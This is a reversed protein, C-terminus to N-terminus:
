DPKADMISNVTQSCVFHSNVDSLILLDMYKFSFVWEHSIVWHGEGWNYQLWFTSLICPTFASAALGSTRLEIGRVGCPPLSSCLGLLQGRIKAHWAVCLHVHKEKLYVPLHNEKKNNNNNYFPPLASFRQFYKEKKRLFFFFNIDLFGPAPCHNCLRPLVSSLSCFSTRRLIPSSSLQTVELPGSLATLYCHNCCNIAQKWIALLSSIVFGQPLHDNYLTYQIGCQVLLYICSNILFIKIFFNYKRFIFAEPKIMVM